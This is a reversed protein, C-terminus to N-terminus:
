QGNSVVETRSDEVLGYGIAVTLLSLDTGQKQLKMLKPIVYSSNDLDPDNFRETANSGYYWAPFYKQVEWYGQANSDYFANNPNTSIVEALTTSGTEKTREYSRKAGPEIKSNNVYYSDDKDNASQFRHGTPDIMSVPNGGCYSYLHQTWPDYANSRYTDQTLFRGTTPNYFRSGM